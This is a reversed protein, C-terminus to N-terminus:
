LRGQIEAKLAKVETGASVIGSEERGRVNLFLGTLGLCYARTRSWDVDRLWEAEGTTGERLALYGERLLWANLNVGRRFSSFGHDSIVMLLDEPELKQLLEGVLSDNRKYLERIADPRDGPRLPATAPHDAELYRWFMHQIRDTADFVCVLSGSRLRDLAAFFMARREKDIDWTQELFTGDNTVGENLAWTDEALGLTSYPGIRKALYTAYYSPHSIPMAPREPDLNIPSLYVSVHEGLELLQARTIGSVHIGPAARFRLTLWDSLKGPELDASAQGIALRVRRAQRDVDITLPLALPPHGVIFTNPPGEVVAEIRDGRLDVRIRTGGEKFREEEKRTTILLFTGQTGLLDPVAMASLEAGYFQDPPFTVPVRLITSWIRHQGLITWFPTSKRLLRLEPRERPILYKGIRLFREVKGVRTSSLVPLYTRRDRDLFDFINHRAPHTGTSFSSWAVPSVSPFTTKLRRYTGSKALRAFNPLEGDKMFQDTLKPDQGDFGVVVLRRISAPPPTQRRMLRWLARFPWILISVIAVVITTFVVLFSSLVAFGAGPGIYALAPSPAALLVVLAIFLTRRLWPL